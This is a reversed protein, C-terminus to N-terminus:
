AQKSPFVTYSWSYITDVVLVIGWLMSVSYMFENAYPSTHYHGSELWSFDTLYVTAEEFSGVSLGWFVIQVLLFVVIHALSSYRYKRAIHVPDKQKAMQERDRSTLLDVGRFDGIKGRMWRDVKKFDQIGFTIAYLVFISIIIQFQSIEGTERYLTWALVAEFGTLGVFLFLFFLSFSRKNFFYRIVGFLLIALLSLIEATIFLHWQYTVLVDIM